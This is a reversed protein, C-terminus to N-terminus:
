PLIIEMAATFLLRACSPCMRCCVCEEHARYDRHERAKLAPMHHPQSSHIRSACVSLTAREKMRKADLGIYCVLVRLSNLAFGDCQM